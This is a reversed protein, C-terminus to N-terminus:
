ESAVQDPKKQLVVSRLYRWESWTILQTAIGVMIFGGLVVLAEIILMVVPPLDLTFKLALACAAPALTALVVKLWAALPFVERFPVGAAKGIYWSYGCVMPIFALMTGIAPGVFGLTIVLPVSLAVNSGFAVLSSLLVYRPKGAAVLITGFATVRGLTMIAYLRFVKAGNLYDSTFFVEIAEEAAVVFVMAIPVVLLSTKATQERWVQVARPGSGSKFLEALRPGYAVGVAYAIGPIIPVQWSGAEYEALAIAGLPIILLRDFRKNLNAVLETLGVPLAFRVMEAMTQPTPSLPKGQYAMAYLGVTIAGFLVGVGSLVIMVVYVDMGLALPVLTGLTIGLSRVLSVSAALRGAGEVVLMTPLMRMPIDGMPLVILFALYELRVETTILDTDALVAIGIFIVAVVGGVLLLLLGMRRSTARREGGTLGALHFQLTNPLGLTAIMSLTTYVLLLGALSGVDAKGLIRVIVLPTIVEALTALTQGIALIGAQHASRQEGM